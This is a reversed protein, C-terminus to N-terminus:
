LSAEWGAVSPDGAKIRVDVGDIYEVEAVCMSKAYTAKAAGDSFYRTAGWRMDDDITRPWTGTDVAKIEAMRDARCRARDSAKTMNYSAM